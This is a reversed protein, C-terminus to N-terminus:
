IVLCIVHMSPWPEFMPRKHAHLPRKAMLGIVIKISVYISTCITTGGNQGVLVHEIVHRNSIKCYNEPSENPVVKPGSQCGLGM